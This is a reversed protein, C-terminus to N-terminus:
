AKRDRRPAFSREQLLKLRDALREKARGVEDKLQESLREIDDESSGPVAPQEQPRM